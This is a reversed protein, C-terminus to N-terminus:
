TCFVQEKFVTLSFSWFYTSLQFYRCMDNNCMKIFTSSHLMFEENSYSWVRVWVLHGRRPDSRVISASLESVSLCSFPCSYRHMLTRLSCWLVREGGGGANCYPHFFAVAPGGDRARRATRRAQLWMRLGLLLLLLLLTLLLSLYVCPVVLSWLM